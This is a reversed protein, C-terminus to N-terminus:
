NRITLTREKEKEAKVKSKVQSWDFGVKENMESFKANNEKEDAEELWRQRYALVTDVHSQQQIALDLAAEWRHLKMLTKVARFVRRAGLLSTVAEEPRRSLLQLEATQRDKDFGSIKHILDLKPIDTLATLATQLTSLDRMRLAFGALVRWLAPSKLFRCLRCAEALRGKVLLNVLPFVHPNVEMAVRSGDSRRITAYSSAESFETIRSGNPVEISSLYDVALLSLDVFAVCPNLFVSFKLDGVVGLVDSKEHWKFFEVPGASLKVPRDFATVRTIWLEKNVDLFAMMKDTDGPAFAISKVDASHKYQSIQKGSLLDCLRLSRAEELIVLFEASVSIKSNKSIKTSALKRRDHAIVQVGNAADVVAVATPGPILAVAPTKLEEVITRHDGTFFTVHFKTLVVPVNYDVSFDVVDESIKEAIKDGVHFVGDADLWAELSGCTKKRDYFSGALVEGTALGIVLGSGEPNWTLAFVSTNQIPFETERLKLNGADVLTVRGFCGIALLESSFALSTVQPILVASLLVGTAAEWLKVQGDDGASAITGALSAEMAVIPGDHARWSTAPQLSSVLSKRHVNTDSTFFVDSGIVLASRVTSHTQALQSRLMGGRSWLKVAGDAAATLLSAGEVFRICTVAAKHAGEVKKDSTGRSGLLVLHGESSGVVSFEGNSALATLSSSPSLVVTGAPNSPACIASGSIAAGFQDVAFVPDVCKFLERTKIKM